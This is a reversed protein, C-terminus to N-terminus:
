ADKEKYIPIQIFFITGPTYFEVRINGRHASVMGKIIALGLGTGHKKTTYFPQWIHERFEPPIGPATDAIAVEVFAKGEPSEVPQARLVLKGGADGMAELANSILNGFVEELAYQNGEIKPCEPSLILECDVKARLIRAKYRSLIRNLLESVDLPTMEYKKPKAIELVATVQASLRDCEELMQHIYKRHTENEIVQRKMLQLTTSINNIMNRMEHAFMATVEGLTARQEYQQARNRMEEQETLDQVVIVNAKCAGNEIVPAIRATALFREGNRRYLHINVLSNIPSSDTKAEFNLSFDQDGILINDIFQGRAERAQYGLIIEASSNIELVAYAPDTIVVAESISNFIKQFIDIHFEQRSIQASTETKQSYIQILATISSSIAKTAELLYEIPPTKQDAIVLVGIAANKEGLINTALYSLGKGRAIRHLYSGPRNKHTWLDTKKLGELDLDTLPDPLLHGDGLELYKKFVPEGEQALYIVLIHAGTLNAGAELTVKLATEIDPSKIIQNIQSLSDFTRPIVSETGDQFDTEPELFLVLEQNIEQVATLKVRTPHDNRDKKTLNTHVSTSRRQRDLHEAGSILEMLETSWNNFLSFLEVSTLEEISKELLQVAALNATLIKWTDPQVILTAIPLSDLQIQTPSNDQRKRRRFGPITVQSSESM